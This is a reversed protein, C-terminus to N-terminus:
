FEAWGSDDTAATVAEPRAAPKAQVPMSRAPKSQAPRAAPRRKSSGNGLKFFAMLESLKGAQNSLARAAATSEEVLASNQQTMEDMSAVSSNIEQVGAAQEQSASSIERVISAVEGISGVIEGLAEGAQNVLEVGEKVQGNSDQILTKIDSAAQASRQALQRVEQAVVAFGKGAEGARAAEVSANLALLNTQFAIEDIVGIIDTIKQASGEIGSMATVAREVIKGGKSATQNATDALQNANKANEANQKVTASMQESSAATEELNSAAQETRDSLDSTGSAIEASAASVESTVTQIQEVIEALQEATRNANDKLEGFKGQFDAEIRQDLQGEATAELMRGIDSTADDVVGVLKNMGNALDRYAGDMQSLDIKRTFDGSSAASIVQDMEKRIMDDQTIDKWEVVTGLVVNGQGHVPSVVVDIHRSGLGMTFTRPSTLGEVISQQNAPNKHFNDINAGILQGVSFQPLDKRLETEHTSVHRLMAPNVYIVEARRNAVMVMTNVGDLAARLRASELGKQYVSDLSRALDGIEDRQGLCPINTEVGNSLDKITSNVHRIPTAVGRVLLWVGLGGLLAGLLSTVAVVKLMLAGTHEASLASQATFHEVEKLAAEIESVVDRQLKDVHHATAEELDKGAALDALLEEARVEYDAYHKEITRITSVLKKFEAESRADVAHDLGKKAIAEAHMLEKEVVEAHHKFKRGIESREQATVLSPLSKEVLVAQELGGVTVATLAEILPIDEEAIEVIKVELQNLFFITGFGIMLIGAMFTGSVLYLKTAIKLNNFTRLM